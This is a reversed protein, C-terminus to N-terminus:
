FQRFILSKHHGGEVPERSQWFTESYHTAIVKGCKDCSVMAGDGNSFDSLTAGLQGDLFPVLNHSKSEERACDVCFHQADLANAKNRFAEIGNLTFRVLAMQVKRRGKLFSLGSPGGIAKRTRVAIHPTVPFCGMWRWTLRPDLSGSCASGRVFFLLSKTLM